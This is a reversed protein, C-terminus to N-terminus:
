CGAKSLRYIDIIEDTDTIFQFTLQDRTAEVLIAGYDANYRAESGAVPERLEYRSGGGLGNVFYPLGDRMIREYHHDHGALAADAGWSQYPWQMWISSGHLGSSFPPHHMYVINWCATSETLAQQLWMAQASDNSVGDPELPNSDLAFLRLPGWTFTYYRENNPLTFYDFYPAGNATEWDHNGLVPFFRNPARGTGYQGSYPFIFDHYYQGINQDITTAAGSPYNNDGLTLVFDPNWGKVLTAVGEADPGALGYDGIVAFRTPPPPPPTPTLTPTPLM